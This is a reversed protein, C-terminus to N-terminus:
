KKVKQAYKKCIEGLIEEDPEFKVLEMGKRIRSLTPRQAVMAQICVKQGLPARQIYYRERRDEYDRPFTHLLDKARRIELKELKEARVPGIGPFETIPTDLVM